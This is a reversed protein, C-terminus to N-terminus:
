VPVMQSGRQARYPPCRQRAWWKGANATNRADMTSLPVWKAHARFARAWGVVALDNQARRLIPGIFIDKSTM